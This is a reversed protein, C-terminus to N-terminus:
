EERKLWKLAQKLGAIRGEYWVRMITNEHGRLTAHTGQDSALQKEVNKTVEERRCDVCMWELKENGVSCVRCYRRGCRPCNRLATRKKGCCQCTFM